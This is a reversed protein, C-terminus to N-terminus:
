FKIGAERLAQAVAEVRGTYKSGGRDFSIEAIQAAMLKKALDEGVLKANAVNGNALKLNFSSSSAVTHGKAQDIAQVWIHANTKTVTIVIKKNDVNKLHNSIRKHRLARQAKRNVNIRKM